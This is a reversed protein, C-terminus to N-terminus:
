GCHSGPTSGPVSHRHTRAHTHAHTHTHASRLRARRLMKTDDRLKARLSYKLIRRVGLKGDRQTHTQHIIIEELSRIHGGRLKFREM